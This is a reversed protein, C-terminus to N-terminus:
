AHIRDQELTELHRMLSIGIVEGLRVPVANGIMRGVSKFNIKEAPMFEYDLPFSQLTAAERLSIARNQEPHGFRGNGFGYCLTTMTPGPEDWRMRGYVSPYTKGSDKQHCKARLDAPWDRWTGGPRSYIIRKLNMPTLSASRHLPDKPDCEGASLQPLHGIADQVTVPKGSHTKPILSIPGLKSALLVHRRRQQPLGYEVCSVPEDWVFYGNGKLTAVFDHYVKHKTVDPVNEMTVLEPKVGEILRKFAYLLPWKRDSRTDRGQNYTSFPQCPACGALLKIYGPRYWAMVEAAPVDEVSKSVFAAHNNREYAYQCNDDIDYGARVYIGSQRLGATLGGAGCFLDVADIM